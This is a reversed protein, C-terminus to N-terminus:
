QATVRRSPTFGDEKDDDFQLQYFLVLKNKKQCAVVKAPYFTTTHPFVAWVSANTPIGSYLLTVPNASGYPIPSPVVTSNLANPDPPLPLVDAAACTFKKYTQDEEDEPAYDEVEYRGGNFNLMKALIWQDSDPERRAAVLSGAPIAYNGREYPIPSDVSSMPPPTSKKSRRTKSAIHADEAVERRRKSPIRLAENIKESVPDLPLEGKTLNYIDRLNKHIKVFVQENYQLVAGEVDDHETNVKSSIVQYRKAVAELERYYKELTKLKEKLDTPNITSVVGTGDRTSAASHNSAM